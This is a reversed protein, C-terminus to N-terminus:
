PISENEVQLGKDPRGSLCYLVKVTDGSRKKIEPNEFKITIVGRAPAVVEQIRCHLM